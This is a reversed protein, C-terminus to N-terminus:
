IPCNGGPCKVEDGNVWELRQEIEMRTIEAREDAGRRSRETEVAAALEYFKKADIAACMRNYQAESIEAYVPQAYGHELHLLFSVCKMGDKYHKRLWSILAPLEEKRYYITCSISNDSYRHQIWKVFTLFDVASVNNAVPANPPLKCPFWVVTSEARALGNLTLTPEHSHGSAKLAPLLEFQKSCSISRKYFQAFGPHCGYTVDVMTSLTGSPKVTTLRISQPWGMRASYKTDVYVLFDTVQTLWMKQQDSAMALSGGGIGMRMNAAITKASIELACPLRLSHKAIVYAYRACRLLTRLSHVNALMLEMLCCTEGDALPQEGCPNVMVITPDPQSSRHAGVMERRDQSSMDLFADIDDDADDDSTSDYGSDTVSASSGDDDDDSDHGRSNPHIRIEGPGPRRDIEPVLVSDFDLIPSDGRGGDTAAAAANDSFTRGGKRCLDLNIFGLPEGNGHYGEFVCKPLLNVDSCIVSNNTNSRWDPVAIARNFTSLWESANLQDPTRHNMDAYAHYWVRRATEICWHVEASVFEALPGRIFDRISIRSEEDDPIPTSPVTKDRPSRAQMLHLLKFHPVLLEVKSGGTSTRIGHLLIEAFAEDSEDEDEAVYDDDWVLTMRIVALMLMYIENCLDSAMFEALKEQSADEGPWRIDWRKSRIFARDQWSGGHILATRRVNGKCVCEGEICVLDMGVCPTIYPYPCSALSELTAHANQISEVLPEPGSAKGGFRKIPEGVARLLHTSYILTGGELHAVLLRRMLEAWGERSDPVEFVPELGMRRHQRNRSRVAVSGCLHEVRARKVRVDRSFNGLEVNVGVGTGYMLAMFVWVLAPVLNETTLRIAACNQLSFLGFDAIMRTGLQHLFRGAPLFKRKYMLTFLEVCADDTLPIGLQYRCGRVVRVLMQAFTEMPTLVDGDVLHRSYTRMFTVFGITSLAPLRKVREDIRAM